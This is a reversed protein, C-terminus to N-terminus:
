VAAARPDHDARERLHVELQKMLQTRDLPKSLHADMGAALCEEVAGKMAHATLAIIPTRRGGREHELRRIERTAEYGDMQPMQCDMLILDYGGRRWASVAERGDVAVDVRFGAKELLRCAVKQNVANDEALLIRPGLKKEAAAVTLTSAPPASALVTEADADSLEEAVVVGARLTFWFTSGVGEASEVGVAGGMLEALRKVISLGLGTGGYRRTTSADVQSFTQFLADRQEPAIGIGTDRVAIRVLTEQAQQEEVRVEVTVAGRETFKVANGGLNLLIQRIRAPDGALRAPLRPDIVAHVRVNKSRAPVCLLRVVDEVLARLDLPLRELELKGAEIKSFDLIDNIVRLLAGASDRITEAHEREEAGLPRDLLLETMGIVGNMPTRIEHSMNALFLSKARTAAEAEEKAQALDRTREAVLAKLTQARRELSAVRLRFLLGAVLLIMGACLAKFWTTEYYHPALTFRLVAGQDNWVGDDNSAIVHFTYDGPPLGTYFATRREGAEIWENQYGELRYRFRVREPALMSLATYQFEWNTVGPAARVAGSLDLTQGDAVVREIHVPPSLPNTRIRAPDVRVFGGIGPFWLAGDQTRVGANTNGGNFENSRLGDALRYGRITPVPGGATALAELQARDVAFLGRQTSFWLVGHADELIQLVCERLEPAAPALSVFRGDRYYAIGELTGFWQAGNADEYMSLVRASPLGDAVGYRHLTEGDLMYLAIGEATIWMRQRRDQKIFIASFPELAHVAAPARTIRGEEILDVGANSGIWIRGRQDETIAKISEGSLGEAPGFHTLRGQRLRWAGYGRTGLWAAGTSDEFVARVRVNTLGLHPSLYQVKGNSYRSLGAETGFWLGGDRSPAVSWGLAGPLGEDAGYSLFKGDRLRVLGGGHVGVWVSGESDELLAWADNGGHEELELRDLVGNQMRWVGGTTAIWLNEDRDRLIAHVEGGLNEAGAVPAFEAGVGRFLRGNEAGVWLVGGGDQYIARVANSPADDALAIREFREGVLRYLGQRSLGAWLTGARDIHLAAVALEGLGQERGYATIRDDAVQFLGTDTGIWVRGHADSTMSRVEGGGLGPIPHARFRGDELLLVGDATGIWLRGRVDVHLANISRSRLEPTTNRDFVTFRVGDFRALGEDTGLWLYGDPTRAISAVTNQPLGHQIQWNDFVYQSPARQPDLASAPQQVAILLAALALVGRGAKVPQHRRRSRSSTPM